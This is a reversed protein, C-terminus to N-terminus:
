VAGMFGMKDCFFNRHDEGKRMLNRVSQVSFINNNEGVWVWKDESSSMQMDELSICLQSWQQFDEASQLLPIWDADYHLQDDVIKVRESVFCTKNNELRFLNPWRHKLACDGMWVDLWFRVSNGNGLKARILTHLFVDNAKLSGGVKVIMKWCGVGNKNKNVPLVDWRNSNKHCANVVRRWLSDKDARYRWVWKFLLAENIEKLRKIGLGGFKKPTTVRSWKVWHIKNNDSMGSWLFKKMLRELYDIIKGPAKYLSFYYIPISELVAKILIVRGGISLLKAKWLALRAEFVEVVKKWNCCRNMNAGVRIGLYDFPFDGRKCGLVLATNNTESDSTGIGYLNSKNINIRLGSCIYFCRLIRAVKIVNSDSWEGLILADDAYFLHSIVTGDIDLRVGQFEGIARAKNLVCSLAEMVVLFLFPSLPDGQRLGKQCKFEFTPSGNVLTSSRASQLIGMIWVCWRNPFGMQELISILFGWNVNDYAKEFDIKLLFAKKSRRKLWAIVENLILPGDLIYRDKLFATQSESIVDGMVNKIRNALVKSIVKSIMGILNIPRYDKM